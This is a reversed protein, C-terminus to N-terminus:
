ERLERRVARNGEKYEENGRRGGGERGRRAEEAKLAERIRKGIERIEEDVSGELRGIRGLNERFRTRGEKNWNGRIMRRRETGRKEM